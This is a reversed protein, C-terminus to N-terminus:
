APGPPVVVTIRLTYTKEAGGADQEVVATWTGMAADAVDTFTAEAFGNEGTLNAVVNGDADTINVMPQAGAGGLLGGPGTDYTLNVTLAAPTLGGPSSTFNHMPGATAGGISQPVTGNFGHESSVGLTFSTEEQLGGGYAVTLGGAAAGPDDLTLTTESGSARQGAVSWAYSSVDAGPDVSAQLTVPSGALIPDQTSAETGNVLVTVSASPPTVVTLTQSTTDSAGDATVELTVNYTGATAFAHTATAGSGTSGDGFDWAYSATAGGPVETASADFTIAQGAPVTAGEAVSFTAIPAEAGAGGGGGLLAAAAAIIALVVLAVGVIILVRRSGEDSEEDEVEEAEHPNAMAVIEPDDTPAEEVVNGEDDLKRLFVDHDKRTGPRIWRGGEQSWAVPTAQGAQSPRPEPAPEPQEADDDPTPPEEPPEEDPESPGEDEEKEDPERSGGFPLKEMLTAIPGKKERPELTDLESELRALEEELESLDSEEAM